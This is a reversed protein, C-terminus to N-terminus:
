YYGGWGYSYPNAPGVYLYNGSNGMISQGPVFGFGDQERDFTKVADDLAKMWRAYEAAYKSHVKLDPHRRYAECEFGQLFYPYLDDPCPDLSQNLSTFRTIRSQASPNITWVQGQQPPLPSLRFGQGNPNIATWVTTGDQVDTSDATPNMLTPFAPNKPWVPETSGCTGYTTVVWLNGNPDKIQTIPNLPQTQSGLPNTYVVGPGPNNQGTITQLETAGWTGTLLLNNPLWCIRGPYGTQIYTSQLDKVVDMPFKPKPQSTINFENAWCSELWGLTVLNPVFYDQQWSITPFPPVYFRNWKWNYPQGNPGGTLMARMVTDAIRLAPQNEFGGTALAPAVDALSLADDVLDQLTISSQGKPLGIPVIPM